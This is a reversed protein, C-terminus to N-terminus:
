GDWPNKPTKRKAAAELLAQDVRQRPHPVPAALAAASTRRYYGYFGEIMRDSVGTPPLDNVFGSPALDPFEKYRAIMFDAYRRAYLKRRESGPEIEEAGEDAVAYLVQRVHAEWGDLGVPRARASAPPTADDVGGGPTGAIGAPEDRRPDAQTAGGAGTKSAVM